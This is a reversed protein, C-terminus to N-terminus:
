LCISPMRSPFKPRWLELETINTHTNLFGTCHRLNFCKHLAYYYHHADLQSALSSHTNDAQLIYQIRNQTNDEPFKSFYRISWQSTKYEIINNVAFYIRSNPQM